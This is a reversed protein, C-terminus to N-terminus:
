KIKRKLYNLCKKEKKILNKMQINLMLVNDKFYDFKVTKENGINYITIQNDGISM